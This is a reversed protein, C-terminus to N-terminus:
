GFAFRWTRMRIEKFLGQIGRQVKLWVAGGHFVVKGATEYLRWRLTQVQRRHWPADLTNLVFLRGINYALVGIRFFVANAKFQGCPMREMGLGIKLEKIRNESCEGRQNYWRVVDEAAELRNSVIVTYRESDKAEDFLIGQVPRRIVILRFAQKTKNMCHVTEAIYGNQYVRWDEAGLSKIQRVVAPDLDGGIAFSIGKQNCYDIVGAQYAASDARFAKIRKGEPLQRECYKLFELNRSAPAENGERFEDGIVLGNEALHGVMPMYGTHGKYTMLASEKEAEIGTADMDLTYGDSGDQKLERKLILRNVGALGELAGNGGSRRMWDGVADSSPIRRMELVERLGRDDRIQRLDELSRGGGNLMLILPLVHESARYGAGSGPTPLERDLADQLGLGVIFEGLLALGAHPTILDKTVELRFPLVTQNIMHSVENTQYKHHRILVYIGSDVLNKL